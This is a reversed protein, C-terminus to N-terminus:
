ELLCDLKTGYLTAYLEVSSQMMWEGEREKETENM